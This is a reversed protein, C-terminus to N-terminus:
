GQRKGYFHWEACKKMETLIHWRLRHTPDTRLTFDAALARRMNDEMRRIKQFAEAPTQWSSCMAWNDNDPKPSTIEGALFTVGFCDLSEM